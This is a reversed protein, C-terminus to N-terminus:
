TGEHLIEVAVIEYARRARALMQPITDVPMGRLGRFCSTVEEDVFAAGSISDDAKLFITGFRVGDVYLTYNGRNNLRATMQYTM